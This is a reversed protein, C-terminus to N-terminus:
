NEDTIVIYEPTTSYPQKYQDSHIFTYLLLRYLQTHKADLSLYIHLYKHCLM